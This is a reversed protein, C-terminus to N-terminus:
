LGLIFAAITGTIGFALPLFRNREIQDGDKAARHLIGFAMLVAAGVLAGIAGGAIAGIGLLIFGGAAGSILGWIMGAFPLALIMLAWPKNELDSLIRGTLKGTYYGATSTAAVAMLVILTLAVASGPDANGPGNSMIKLFLATTPLAGTLAGLKAVADETSLKGPILPTSSERLIGSYVSDGDEFKSNEINLLDLRHLAEREFDRQGRVNSPKETITRSTDM